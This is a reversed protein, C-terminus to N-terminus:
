RSPLQKGCCAALVRRDLSTIRSCFRLCRASWLKAPHSACSTMAAGTGRKVSITKPEHRSPRFSVSSAQAPDYTYGTLARASQRIDTESYGQDRGMSFLEMIERALNENAKGKVNTDNNLYKLMAADHAIGHLLTAFNGAANDRFLQNQLYMYYSDGVDSYQAPIQGHWFLTLKEELPRPSEIM